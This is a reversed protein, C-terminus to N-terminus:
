NKTRLYNMDLKPFIRIKPKRRNKTGACFSTLIEFFHWFTQKAFKRFFQMNRFINKWAASVLENRPWIQQSKLINYLVSLGFRESINSDIKRNLVPLPLKESQFDFNQYKLYLDLFKKLFFNLPQIKECIWEYSM